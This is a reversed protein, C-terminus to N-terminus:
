WTGILDSGRVKKPAVEPKVLGAKRKARLEKVEKYLDSGKALIEQFQAQLLHEPLVDVRLDPNFGSFDGNTLADAERNQLRPLWDLRLELDQTHLIWALQMLVVCFPYKTTLFRSVLHRNGLNDTGASIHFVRSSGQDQPFALLSALTGLLELAAIARYPEGSEFVWPITERTLKVSFWRCKGRDRSDSCCWGGLVVTEGEAKADSRFAHDQKGEPELRIKTRAVQGVM